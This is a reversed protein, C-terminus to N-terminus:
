DRLQAILLYHELTTLARDAATVRQQYEATTRGLRRCDVASRDVRTILEALTKLMRQCDSRLLPDKLQQIGLSCQSHRHALDRYDTAQFPM